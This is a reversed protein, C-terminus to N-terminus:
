VDNYRCRVSMDAVLDNTGSVVSGIWFVFLAGTSIDGINGADAKYITELNVKKYWKIEQIVDATTGIASTATTNYIFPGLCYQQDALIQFRDRNNLNLQAYVSASFLLDTAAFAAGNPQKDWVVILRGMQAPCNAGTVIPNAIAPQVAIQGRIYISKIHTKRGVREDFDVGQRPLFVLTPSGTTNVNYSAVDVDFAKLETSDAKKALRSKPGTRQRKLPPRGQALNASSRTRKM